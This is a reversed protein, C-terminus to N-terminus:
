PNRAEVGPRMMVFLLSFATAKQARPKANTLLFAFAGSAEVNTFYEDGGFRCGLWFLASTLPSNLIFCAKSERGDNGAKFRGQSLPKIAM